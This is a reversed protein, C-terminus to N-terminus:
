ISSCLSCSLAYRAHFLQQAVYGPHVSMSHKMDRTYMCMSVGSIYFSAHLALAQLLMLLGLVLAWTMGDVGGEQEASEAAGYSSSASLPARSTPWVEASQGLLVDVWSHNGIGQISGHAGVCWTANVQMSSNLRSAKCAFLYLILYRLSISLSVHYVVSWVVLCACAWATSTRMSERLLGLMLRETISSSTLGRAQLAVDLRQSLWAGKKGHWSCPIHGGKGELPVVLLGFAGQHSAKVIADDDTHVVVTDLDLSSVYVNQTPAHVQELELVHELELTSALDRCADREDAGTAHRSTRASQENQPTTKDLPEDRTFNQSQTDHTKTKPPKPMYYAPASTKFIPPSKAAQMSPLCASIRPQIPQISIVRAQDSDPVDRTDRTEDAVHIGAHTSRSLHTLSNMLEDITDASVQNTSGEKPQIPQTMACSQSRNFGMGHVKCTPTHAKVNKRTHSSSVSMMNNIMNNAKAVQGISAVQASRTGNTVLLGPAKNDVAPNEQQPSVQSIATCKHHLKMAAHQDTSSDASDTDHFCPTTSTAANSPLREILSQLMPLAYVRVGQLPTRCRMEVDQTTEEGELEATTPLSQADILKSNQLPTEVRVENKNKACQVVLDVEKTSSM